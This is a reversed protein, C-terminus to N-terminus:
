FGVFGELVCKFTMDHIRLGNQVTQSLNMTNQSPNTFTRFTNGSLACISGRVSSGKGVGKLVGRAGRLCTGFDYRTKAFQKPRTALHEHLQSFPEYINSFDQSIVCLFESM